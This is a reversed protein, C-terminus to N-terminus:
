FTVTIIIEGGIEKEVNGNSIAKWVEQIPASIETKFTSTKM